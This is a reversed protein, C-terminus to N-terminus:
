VAGGGKCNMSCEDCFDTPLAASNIPHRVTRRVARLRCDADRLSDRVVCPRKRVRKRLIVWRRTYRHGALSFPPFLAVCQATTRLNLHKNGDRGSVCMSSFYHCRIVVLSSGSATLSQGKIYDPEIRDNLIRPM